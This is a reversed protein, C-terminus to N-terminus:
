GVISYEYRGRVPDGEAYRSLRFIRRSIQMGAEKLVMDAVMEGVAPALKFGHGSFGACCYLNGGAILEDIVPHWDPTIAYLAAYGGASQSREMAPFRSVLRQGADAMFDVSTREDYSDPDVVADAESPDILGVLTLAGTEDRWYVGNAFDAIVPHGQRHGEPRKFFGVQVRCSRIPLNVESLAAVGAGWPGACNIVIPAEFPGRRSDVGKVRGASLRIGTVPADQLIRGGNRRVGAAYSNLTLNPDAYGSEPEYAAGGLDSTELAPMIGLVAERDLLETKIGLRRQLQINEQLGHMDKKRTLALFATERFGCEGGVRADFDQFVRLSHLAMSATVENSYHQRIIASSKGSSGAGVVEKELVLVKLGRNALQFASSLGMIGGGIIIVDFNTGM